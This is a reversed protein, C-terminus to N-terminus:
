PRWMGPFGSGLILARDALLFQQNRAHVSHKMGFNGSESRKHESYNRLQLLGRQIRGILSTRSRSIRLAEM